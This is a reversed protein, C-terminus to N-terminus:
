RYTESGPFAHQWIIRFTEGDFAVVTANFMAMIIDVTGDKNIDALVPPVMVGPIFCMSCSYQLASKREPFYADSRLRIPSKKM